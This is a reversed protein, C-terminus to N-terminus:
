MPRAMTICVLTMKREKNEDNYIKHYCITDDPVKRVTPRCLILFYKFGDKANGGPLYKSAKYKAQNANEAEVVIEDYSNYAYSTDAIVAYKSM